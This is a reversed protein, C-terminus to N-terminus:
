HKSFIVSTGENKSNAQKKQGSENSIDKHLENEKAHKLTKRYGGFLHAMQVFTASRKAKRDIRVLGAIRKKTYHYEAEARYKIKSEEIVKLLIHLM